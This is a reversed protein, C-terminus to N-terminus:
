HLLLTFSVVKKWTGLDLCHSNVNAGQIRKILTRNFMPVVNGQGWMNGVSVHMWTQNGILRTDTIKQYCYVKFWSYLLNDSLVLDKWTKLQSWKAGWRAKNTATLMEPNHTICMEWMTDSTQQTIGCYASQYTSTTYPSPIPHLWAPQQTDQKCHSIQSLACYSWILDSSSDEMHIHTLVVSFQM